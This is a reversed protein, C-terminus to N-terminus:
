DLPGGIAELVSVPAHVVLDGQWFVITAPGGNEKWIDPRVVSEILDVLAQGKQAQTQEPTGNNNQNNSQNQFTMGSNGGGSQGLTIGGSNTNSNNLFNQNATDVSLNPLSVLLDQVPYVVTYMITDAQQQTTVTLVNEDWYYTLENGNGAESLVVALAKRLSINRLHVNILSNQDVGVAQLSKWDVVINAGSIDRLYDLASSLAVDTFKLESLNENMFSSASRRTEVAFTPAAALALFLAVLSLATARIM